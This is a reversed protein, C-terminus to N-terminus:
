MISSCSALFPSHCHVASQQCAVHAHVYGHRRAPICRLLTSLADTLATLVSILILENEDQEGTVYFWVDGLNRYVSIVNNFLIIEAQRATM